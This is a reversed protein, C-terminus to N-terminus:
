FSHKKDPFKGSRVEKIYMLIASKADQQLDAYKKSFSPSRKALGFIDNVVLCQGDCYMGAGCSIIPVKTMDSLIKGVTAPVMEVLIAFVGAKELMKAEKILTQVAEPTKGQVKYGGIKKLSQPTFGIHGMVPIGAKIIKAIDSIQEVGEIKVADAGDTILQKSTKLVNKMGKAPVDAIVFSDKAGRRVARVHHLMEEVTVPLTNEYGLMVNGVSDGVLVIDVGAEQLLSSTFADYATLMTIKHGSKKMKLFKSIM